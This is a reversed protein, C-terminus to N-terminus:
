LNFCLKGLGDAIGKYSTVDFATNGRSTRVLEKLLGEHFGRGFVQHRELAAFQWECMQFTVTRPHASCPCVITWEGQPFAMIGPSKVTLLAHFYRSRFDVTEIRSLVRPEFLDIFQSFVAVAGPM